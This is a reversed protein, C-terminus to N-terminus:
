DITVTMCFHKTNCIILYYLICPTTQIVFVKALSVNVNERQMGRTSPKGITGSWIWAMLVNRRKIEDLTLATTDGMAALALAELSRESTPLM